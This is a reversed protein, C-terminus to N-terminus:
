VWIRRFMFWQDPYSRVTREMSDMIQQTLAEVDRDYDGTPQFDLPKDFCTSFRNGKTRVMSAPVIRAGTRLALAAPGGPVKARAGCFEVKVNGLNPCDILMALVENRRLSKLLSPMAEKRAAIVKLGFKLRINQTWHNIRDNVVKDAVVNMPYNSRAITMAAAEVSGMHLTVVIVGKGDALALDINDLGSISIRDLVGEHGRIFEGVWRIYNRFNNRAARDIQKKTADPGLARQMNERANRRARRWGLYMVDAIVVATMYMSKQPLRRFLFRLLRAIFYLFM